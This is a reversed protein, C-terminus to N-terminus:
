VNCNVRFKTMPDGHLDEPLGLVQAIRFLCLLIQCGMAGLRLREGIQLGRSLQQVAGVQELVQGGILQLVEEHIEIDFLPVGRM